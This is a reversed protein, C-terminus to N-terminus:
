MTGQFVANRDLSKTPPSARNTRAAPVDGSDDIRRGAVLAAVPKVVVKLGIRLAPEVGGFLFGSAPPRVPNRPHSAVGASGHGRWLRLAVSVIGGDLGRRPTIQLQLRVLILQVLASLQQPSLNIRQYLKTLQREVRQNNADNEARAM